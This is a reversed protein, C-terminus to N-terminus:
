QKAHIMWKLTWVHTFIHRNQEKAKTGKTEFRGNMGMIEEETWCLDEFSLQTHPWAGRRQADGNVNKHKVFHLPRLTQRPCDSLLMESFHLVSGRWFVDLLSPVNDQCSSIKGQYSTNKCKCQPFVPRIEQRIVKLASINTGKASWKESRSLNLCSVGIKLVHQENRPSKKCHKFFSASIITNEALGLRKRDGATLGSLIEDFWHTKWQNSDTLLFDTWSVLTKAKLSLRYM